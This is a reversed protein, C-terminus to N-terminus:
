GQQRGTAAAELFRAAAEIVEESDRAAGRLTASALDKQWPLGVYFLGPRATSVGRRQVPRGKPDLAGAIELFSLSPSFGTAFIVADADEENGDDWVVGSGTFRTFMRRLDPRGERIARRYHGDDLVPATPDGPLSVNDIGLWKLWFHIDKGLIRQPVWRIRGRTALTVKAVQALEVAIQVASNGAGVVIVRKGAFRGPSHYDRSHMIEGRFAQRGTLKPLRPTGFGGTAIVVARSDVLRGDRAAIRFMGDAFDVRTVDFGTRIPLDYHAAYDRLYRTVEDRRPYRELDGPFPMGPMASYRAPSFLTLSEYYHPWSGGAEQTAELIEFDLRRQKARYGAALGSQGAGIITLDAMIERRTAPVAQM